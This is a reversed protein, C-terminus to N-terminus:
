KRWYKRILLECIDKHGAHFAKQYGTNIDEFRLYLKQFESRNLLMEVINILGVSCALHFGFIVFMPKLSLKSKISESQDLIMKTIEIHGYQLAYCFASKQLYNMENLDIKLKESNKMILEALEVKGKICALHLATSGYSNKRSLDIKLEDSKHTLMEAINVRGPWCAVLFLTSGSHNVINKDSESDLIAKFKDVQGYQAALHLYTNGNSLITPINVIRLWQYMKRDIFKQWTKSVERSKALDESDLKQLLQEMMHPFRLMSENIDFTM